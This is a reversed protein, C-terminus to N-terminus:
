SSAVDGLVVFPSVTTTGDALTLVKSLWPQGDVRHSGRIVTQFEPFATEKSMEITTRRRDGVVYKGFDYLGIDGQTGLTSVKDDWYIPFNLLRTPSGDTANGWLYAPNGSPGEMLM